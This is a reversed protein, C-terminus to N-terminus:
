NLWQSPRNDSCTTGPKPLRAIEEPTLPNLLSGKAAVKKAREKPAPADAVLDGFWKQEKNRKFLKVELRRKSEKGRLRPVTDEPIIEHSLPDLMLLFHKVKGGSAPARLRLQIEVSKEQCTVRFQRLSTVATSANEMPLHENLDLMVLVTPGEDLFSYQKLRIEEAEEEWLQKLADPGQTAPAKGAEVRQVADSGAGQSLLLQAELAHAHAGTNDGLHRCIQAMFKEVKAAFELRTQSTSFSNQFLRADRPHGPAARMAQSCDQFWNKAESMRGLRFSMAGLQQLLVCREWENNNKLLELSKKYSALAGLGLKPKEELAMGLLVFTSAPAVVQAAEESTMLMEMQAIGRAVSEEDLEKTADEVGASQLFLEVLRDTSM